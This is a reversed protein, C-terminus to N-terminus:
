NAGARSDASVSRVLLFVQEAVLGGPLARDIRLRVM